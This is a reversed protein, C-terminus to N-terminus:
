TDTAQAQSWSRVEANKQPPTKKRREDMVMKLPNPFMGDQM